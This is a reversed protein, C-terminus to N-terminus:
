GPAEELEDVTAGKLADRVQDFLHACDPCARPHALLNLALAVRASYEVEAHQRAPALSM